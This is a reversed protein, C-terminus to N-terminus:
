SKSATCGHDSILVCDRAVPDFEFGVSCYLPIEIGATCMYFKNCEVPDPVNGFVGPPCIAPTTLVDESTTEVKVTTPSNENMKNDTTVVLNDTHDESPSGRSAFCGNESIIVCKQVNPDFEFGEGCYLPIATGGTCMYFKDCRDPDPVNGFVHPPCISATTAEIPSTTTEIRDPTTTESSESTAKDNDGIIIDSITTSSDANTTVEPKETEQETTQSETPTWLGKSAYCGDETIPVCRQVNIDFEFGAGCYLAIPHGVTCHFFRDCREPDPIIGSFNPPCVNITTTEILETTIPDNEGATPILVSTSEQEGPKNDITSTDTVDNDEHAEGTTTEEKVTTVVSTDTHDNSETPTWMGKSAYCGDESIVDCQGLVPNFEYGQSCPLLTPIGAMCMYYVDCRDPHPINGFVGPPCLNTPTTTIHLEGTTTEVPEATTVEADPLVTTILEDDPITEDEGTAAQSVDTTIYSFETTTPHQETSTLGKSAFCGNESIVVCQGEVPDFEYGESCPLLTPIGAMCMYYVDCLEPHPVNGFVGPPCINPPTTVEPAGTTGSEGTTTDVSDVTTGTVGTTTDASDVTTGTVGTTTDASDVTTGTVGTTTDASEVTTGTVGTTTDASDVTTGTVGTTTDIPDGTTIHSSETTTPQQETPTWMGKSAFCGNESIVVCQGEVPDFEYGETCPLLTPIGAMCMYYVDCLEPHPVNGFVGPPCINPPTTVEPASTTGSEGTTTEISEVTTGTVGTTTDASDVTTGTVGTTTDASDVTTGTVGTTTDASDVTTGTGGTTTEIPDDTATQSIDTTTHSSETTTPQQETPTWMGKSAFCGNESIVVCQGEVPDFEYGETCPLLTPIGAMCMYYVDCLEPHPVNGFVGPPCINPPTTVEPAGTTSPEGTTTDASDVTTGTVGTTTDASDVTTGIVGTTTDASEVTTGTVGTTTDASDVTTGTVGTTTDIPDDTTIHSSETTTPQQETPTWMGKSAFCGNESIVVCQAETPDFEYGEACPLLTPIGAICMYYADCLDPHPVNGFVGPPCVNPPTTVEAEVTTGSEGTTTEISDVTTGTVGATTGTVGTTTEASDVTTGTVGTTTEASDVTTERPTDTSESTSGYQDTTITNETTSQDPVTPTSQGQSAFCGNESIEVCANTEPDFEHGETCRLLTPNGMVCVYYADCLEPHPVFGFDGPPCEVNIPTTADSETTSGYNGTTLTTETTPQDPVTPTWQGQSAFCGNESIEVCSNREPDFEYGEACRLLTPNGMICVYYADCLEPHPVFGFDGPPCEVNIPTTTDISETTTALSETTPGTIDRVTTTEVPSVTTESPTTRIDETTTEETTTSQDPVTPTWQGQSAFCGNESIEVCANREPDFEHGETCRLLTPNGMVCVYYADCLEPHPVFGFDGPPCEVNIPTTTDISETTSGYNGTTLTTETTSQDPVTPTWQGQSAFCGNESIEVCSNREPDFEYGEACRLLTPNGMICVYYADCLEPHPVFGFDGPPCEVNIPTTTDISETTTALSETTPGTIDRVTTTEVPSVTTESPTTRIDETTTEETTTSQDPVTPTWQGQSAFCGNESIEVCANREPDFEYGETCRLLTPNGMVCVYYADCLEPHPVFGFDGPPCEVNIPTTTDISETTTALSETTPETVDRVTTTEVPSVTTEQDSPTTRIDETTSEEPLATTERPTSVDSETTSGINGTTLTTETTPQDPITPTWQGQSAFCGNESIEVCANTEPDFETGETCRLLTPNGMVCVYYADCLEPHPVFGFDGPPCEVNIPTTTDISETTTALSETTPGTIDRMTTTEVPFVTTESPTTRIDEITTEEPLATTERPTSVDSETTSGYNGTTLTTETTPQDPITPTWQGQSAFCGNESIEVCANTEPDFETGETCRLLTPNGMVCVYYADCLEPHPVFGFDGPPCEVNIPTTTDISETTTALSETTPGTIDRVTTTEVPSVTTEQDSPTTRIDETTSEEPLATTERPTSVDSETTSGYNGTTLTTETTPQDPITPTWQGQSAFCGNESIEVCANREPDFEHGETCRLLTPNGMVCVYYADCLEPHPVFGFDGPPCEVNIPTTTDISETTTALSETTPGTIDRMTTTEVPSVTTESPTTRIDETTTEEPLATTERPTSVDSETTSGYNGTTLTTETTPQDPITPTWQGQSAFCGNESIEVCSNTEPDFEHGETCRLLTPNGMVCVYYADCLEPHPVFGFDGPPCEVNIPTTTDISETTTALSETTPGTIDRTTTTEVPSVTTEQDSPTTRIDEITTEEPLATTERPTSVDSETTSGINGTTLTTETTPQDPITPTWQGQSAFCGNESIEVCANTEPDFEHGETCRLLTPNGMVCVYYADCLEPHPVFGFDGPPCEVNIPTTTDISETTTALSETTPGTVDRMTTTEVPSVTTEQDSPTTRIDETTTEEPLATTERPTTVDSETTSGYNGTTLTTETTPQDPITPTWQGQSAFCGNESIEVCSNTDPDFEYGETCRLLTPNGMVCVYYADCLEPHPVFGFDGPPCEVNIPTTTDISETTTALSETTPGTIDRVTTTEVPSVTTEQDSPTTRIDETTTEEPLATTERPTSVDSETTSGYNGTTLTTETTPQDPITPTWQGQSAFCGNESIEVCANIEPNFEDGESCWMLNPNGMVCVYYADCHEPHPVFGLTGPPCEINIPTTTDISETTTSVDGTTSEVPASTTEQTTTPVTTEVSPETTERNTTPIYETTTEVTPETTERITTPVYETTSEVTPETVERTTTTEVPSVTTEQDTTTTDSPTTRIDETTTEDPLATTERPTTADSETTSGYNGTTLTTETTPQDPITPTWQGQSAFCGNESIEVCFNREPDFEYGESCWMLTPNGMVCVYYADCHEPHPVFGLSGPPCEISIPTTTEISETTTSVDETTTEVPVKTTEQPTTPATTEVSPETTEWITTPATTEVSPETTEWITTPATTEVSPETTEWITTPATTEVSPETTEWITTPATTEVSPETTERITTPATTEVSPETTEWITTPATTEVSPETTEWITTPATTEVSPETTERITTPATTEVSPETTEWITTPATTEVSPETTERITTPVTTEVSPETTERITTSIYGTTTEEPLVTTERLTTADSETTSGINGTTLTTETTPQDPITPTWQGQSAFCGNESIEVCINREPDFEDGENCWMLTPIGMVCFYYADCHEPHPVFGLNGPPCEINIPTTTDISETTTSVDETTNEVPAKTTEQSTTPVTTEVSPETTERITTPVTTEVSPETTDRITTQVTTEVSPETTERITTPVTTEVSPETTERITTPATTEVSPETTERITTPATTEVSPETTERITTPVTTEVSPETTERITTPVTTEVSPETTERITTPVTTEVSPETTERITTPATTEVSPETTERITTPVTTEVSPETTERITTPVTTEVSPETTERITTPVTTEVSPETTERITTPVTTEVSPETTERVTTPVTTEVSPETTERITTPATTEVSPETTERITTPATTEVSPETTERITTPVTTEVSPETTERVTTPVTTEVSPETTERITTPATTEVSPETTERITTPATTEVSPETTERITTPATTEVSPETTERITTPVTTEVSPETTERITTPATTEVSPETTERVTTPVTTEVSPETTERITTPVTTEVSPETTERITTPATTEVSPETTERITTPVTTEVSPETTERITTPVTTEVSPETTERITTPIYETTTEVSPATTERTTTPIYQTTGTSSETSGPSTTTVTSTCNVASPWNCVQLKPDFHTGPACHRELKEGFNCYYFKACDTEHPLLWHISFDSPCGNPLWSGGSDGGGSICGASEPWDCVQLKPNFHTGGPCNREIKNGFNCYYFKTCDSEHPLLKHIGFDVPCGNPLLNLDKDGEGASACIVNQADACEQLEVDFATGRGCQMTIKNGNSCQYFKTCDTEHPLLLHVSFDAPCGNPLFNAWGHGLLLLFIFIQM